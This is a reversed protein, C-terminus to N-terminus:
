AKAHAHNVVKQDNQRQMAMADGLICINMKVHNQHQFSRKSTSPRRPKAKKIVLGHLEKLHKNLLWKAVYAVIYNDMKCRWKSRYKSWEKEKCIINPACPPALPQTPDIEIEPGSGYVGM